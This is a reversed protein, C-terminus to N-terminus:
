VRKKTGRLLALMEAKTPAAAREHRVAAIKELAVAIRSLSEAMTLHIRVTMHSAIGRDIERLVSETAETNMEELMEDRTKEKV